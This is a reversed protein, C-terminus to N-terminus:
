FLYKKSLEDKVTIKETKIPYLLNSTKLSKDRLKKEHCKKLFMLENEKKEIQKTEKDIDSKIVDEIFQKKLVKYNSISNEIFKAKTDVIKKKQRNEERIFIFDTVLIL